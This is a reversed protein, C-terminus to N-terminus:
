FAAVVVRGRAGLPGEQWGARPADHGLVRSDAEPHALHAEVVHLAGELCDVSRDLDSEVAYRDRSREPDVRGGHAGADRGTIPVEAGPVEEGDPIVGLDADADIAGLACRFLQDRHGRDDRNAADLRPYREGCLRVGRFPTRGAPGHHVDRPREVPVLEANSRASGDLPDDASLHM